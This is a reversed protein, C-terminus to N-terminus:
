TQTESEPDINNDDRHRSERGWVILEQLQEIVLRNQPSTPVRDFSTLWDVRGRESLDKFLDVLRLRYLTPKPPEISPPIVLTDDDFLWRLRDLAESARANAAVLGPSLGQIDGVAALTRTQKRVVELCEQQTREPLAQFAMALVRDIPTLGFGTM